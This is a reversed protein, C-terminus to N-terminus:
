HSSLIEKVKENLEEKLKRGRYEKSYQDIKIAISLKSALLRAIKGRHEQPASQIMPHSFILGYKPSKGQGHLHRFLAKESGLLQITSSPMKALQEIGGARSIMKGALMPGALETFNPALEKLINELYRSLEERLKSMDLIKDAYLQIIKIDDKQLDAGMSKQVIHKFTAVDERSGYEKVIKAYEQYDKVYDGLEPFHLGYWEVLRELFINFSKDLEEITRAVQIILSDRAIAKKIKVKTLELNIKTILQNFEAQDKVFGGKVALNRLNEKAIGWVKNEPDAHKVGEKKINFIFEKYGKKYLERMLWKEEDIIKFESTKLKEAIKEPDKLFPKFSIVNGKEDIGLSGIFTSFIYAQM